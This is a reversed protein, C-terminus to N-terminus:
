SNAEAERDVERDHALNLFEAAIRLLIRGAADLQRPEYPQEEDRQRQLVYIAFECRKRARRDQHAERAVRMAARDEQGRNAMDPEPEPDLWDDVVLAGLVNLAAERRDEDGELAAKLTLWQSSDMAAYCGGPDFSRSM